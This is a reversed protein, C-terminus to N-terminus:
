GVSHNVAFVKEFFKGANGFRGGPNAEAKQPHSRQSSADFLFQVALTLLRYFSKM